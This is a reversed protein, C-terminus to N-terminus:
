KPKASFKASGTCIYTYPLSRFLDPVLFSFNLNLKGKIKRRGSKKVKVKYNKTAKIGSNMAAPQLKKVKKTKGLKFSGPPQYLESGSRTYGSGTTEICTTAVATRIKSVKSGKRKFKISTGSSTKGKYSVTKAEAASSGVLACALVMGTIAKKV